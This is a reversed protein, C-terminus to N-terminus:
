KELCRGPGAGLAAAAAARGKRWPRRSTALGGSDGCAPPTPVVHAPAYTLVPEPVVHAPPYQAFDTPFQRM